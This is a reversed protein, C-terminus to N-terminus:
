ARASEQLFCGQRARTRMRTNRATGAFTRAGALQWMKRCVDKGFFGLTPPALM